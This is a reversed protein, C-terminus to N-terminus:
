FTCFIAAVADLISFHLPVFFILKSLWCYREQGRISVFILLHKARTLEEYGILCGTGCESEIDCCGNECKNEFGVYIVIAKAESGRAVSTYRVCNWNNEQCTNEIKDCGDENYLVLVDDGIIFKSLITFQDANELEIWLPIMGTSFSSEYSYQKHIITDGHNHHHMQYFNALELIEQSCRQPQNLKCEFPNGTDRPNQEQSEQTNDIGRYTLCYVYDINPIDTDEELNIQIM